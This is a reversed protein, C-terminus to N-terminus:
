HTMFLSPTTRVRSMIRKTLSVVDKMQGVKDIHDKMADTHEARTGDLVGKIGDIHNEALEKYPL